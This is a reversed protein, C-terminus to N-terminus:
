SIRFIQLFSYRVVLSYCACSVQGMAKERRKSTEPNPHPTDLFNFLKFKPYLSLGIHIAWRLGGQSQIYIFSFIKVGIIQLDLPITPLSFFTSDSEWM